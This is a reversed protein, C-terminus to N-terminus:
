ARHLVKRFWAPRPCSGAAVWAVVLAQLVLSLEKTVHESLFELERASNQMVGFLLAAAVIRGPRNKALLAVAIGTFGYGPSFGEVLSHHYGMVENVGVLGALAGGLAMAGILRVGVRIGAFRAAAEETGAVRVEYGWVSRLLLAHLGVALALAGFLTLNVPTDAFCRLGVLSCLTDLRALHYGSAVPMSETAQSFPDDLPYLILWNVLAIAVFNLLITVIVEHSGRRVKLWAALAAWAAGAAAAAAIGLPIGLWASDTPVLHSVAVVAAAGLYLQGEAGINFLGAHFCVAVSLGTLLIPTTYFLSYGLGFPTLLSAGLAELVVGGRDGLAMVLACAATALLAAAIVGGLASTARRPIPRM